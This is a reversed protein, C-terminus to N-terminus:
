YNTKIYYTINDTFLCYVGVYSRKYCRFLCTHLGILNWKGIDHGLQVNDSAFEWLVLLMINCNQKAPVFDHCFTLIAHSIWRTNRRLLMNSMIIANSIKMYLGQPCFLLLELLPLDLNTKHMTSILVFIFATKCLKVNAGKYFFNSLIPQINKTTSNM